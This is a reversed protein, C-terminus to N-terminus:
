RDRRRTFRNERRSSATQRGPEVVARRRAQRVVGRRPPRCPRSAVLILLLGHSHPRSVWTSSMCSIRPVFLLQLQSSKSVATVPLLRRQEGTAM